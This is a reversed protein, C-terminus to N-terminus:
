QESTTYTAYNMSDNFQHLGKKLPFGHNLKIMTDDSVMNKGYTLYEQRRALKSQDHPVSTSSSVRHEMVTLDRHLHTTLLNM